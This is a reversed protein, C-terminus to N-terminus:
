SALQGHDLMIATVVNNADQAATAKFMAVKGAGATKTYAADQPNHGTVTAVTIYIIDGKAVALGAPVILQYERGDISLSIVDDSVGGENAIGVWGQVVVLDNKDVSYSLTVDVSKGDSELVVNKGTAM